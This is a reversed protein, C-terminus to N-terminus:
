WGRFRNLAAYVNQYKEGENVRLNGLLANYSKEALVQCMAVRPSNNSLALNYALLNIVYDLSEMPLDVEDQPM